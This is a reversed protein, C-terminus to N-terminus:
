YLEIDPAENTENVIVIPKREEFYDLALEVARDKDNAKIIYTATDTIKIEYTKKMNFVEKEKINTCYLLM